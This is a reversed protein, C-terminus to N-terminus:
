NDAAGQAFGTLFKIIREISQRASMQSISPVSKKTKLIKQNLFKLSIAVNM